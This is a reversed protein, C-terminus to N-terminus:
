KKLMAIEQDYIYKGNLMPTELIKPINKLCTHNVYKYITDFGITGHGINAHRDKRSGSVNLSDSVHIALLKELGIIKDFCEIVGEVNHIDYGADNIHCIDLCVGIRNQHEKKIGNIIEKLHEFKYGIETGKGSMTELLIKVNTKDIDLVTNLNQIINKIGIQENSDVYCGPHVVIQSVHFDQSRKLELLLFKNALSSIKPNNSALNITYPAHIVIKSEDINNEQIVKRAENIKLLETPLRTTNQPSGTYFMFCNAGIDLAYQVTGLYYFPASLKSYSGLFM